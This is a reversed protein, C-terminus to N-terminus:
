MIKSNKEIRYLFNIVNFHLKKSFVGLSTREVCVTDFTFECSLLCKHYFM